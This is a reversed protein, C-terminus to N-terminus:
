IQRPRRFIERMNAEFLPLITLHLDGRRLLAPETSNIAESLLQVALTGMREKLRRIEQDSKSYGVLGFPVVASTLVAKRLFDRRTMEPNFIDDVSSRIITILSSTKGKTMKVYSPM